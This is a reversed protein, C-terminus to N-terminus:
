WLKWFWDAARTRSKVNFVFINTGKSGGYLLLRGKIRSRTRYPKYPCTLCFTFDTFSYLSLRTSSHLPIMFALQKHGVISERGPISQQGTFLVRMSKLSPLFFACVYNRYLELRNKRWAVIYESLDYYQVHPNVRAKHEDFNAPLAEASTCSIQVLM